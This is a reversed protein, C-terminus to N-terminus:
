FLKQQKGHIKERIIDKQIEKSEEILTKVKKTDSKTNMLFALEKDDFEFYANTNPALEKNELFMQIFPIDKIGQRKSTHMKKGIKEAIKKKLERKSTSASLSSLLSPFQFPRWGQYDKSRSLGVGWTSLASSYKMFGYHQRRWIRGNFIDARSLINFANSIDEGEFQRPINEEVWRMLLDGSVESNWAVQQIEMADHGKFIKTMVPFIKEKRGRPYLEKVDSMQINPALSQVDLLASRFDGGSNKALEKIADPDFEIGEETCIERLRKAISLYNIKRFEKLETLTRLPVLKRDSYINNATLIVPNTTEKILSFIAGAGGRDQSQLGDVEDLLILRKTGFLSSNGAAVGAIKEIDDKTRFNSSNMEFIEWGMSKAIIYALTTKGSGSQGFFCLPKQAKNEDWKEAWKRASDVIEVNGIFEDFNKPYYKDVLLQSMISNPAFSNFGTKTLKM